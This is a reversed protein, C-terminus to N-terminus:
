VEIYVPKEEPFVSRLADIASQIVAAQEPVACGSISDKENRLAEGLAHVAVEALQRNQDEEPVNSLCRMLGQPCEFRAGARTLETVDLHLGSGNSGLNIRIKGKTIELSRATLTQGGIRVQSDLDRSIAMFGM